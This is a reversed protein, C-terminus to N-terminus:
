LIFLRVMLFFVCPSSMSFYFFGQVSPPHHLPPPNDRLSQDTLSVAFKSCFLNQFNSPAFTTRKKCGALKEM